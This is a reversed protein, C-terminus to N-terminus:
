AAEPDDIPSLVMRIDREARGATHTDAGIAALAEAPTRVTIAPAGRWGERWELQDRTYVGDGGM